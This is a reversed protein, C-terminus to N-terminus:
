IPFRPYTIYRRKKQEQWQTHAAKILSVFRYHRPLGKMLRTSNDNQIFHLIQYCLISTFLNKVGTGTRCSLTITRIYERGAKERREKMTRGKNIAFSGVMQIGGRQRNVQTFLGSSNCWAAEEKSRGANAPRNDPSPHVYRWRVSYSRGAFAPFSM